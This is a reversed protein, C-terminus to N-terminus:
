KLGRLTTKRNRTRFDSLFSWAVLSKKGNKKKKKKKKQFDFNFSFPPVFLLICRPPHPRPVLSCFASVQTDLSGFISAQITFGSLAPQTFVTTAHQIYTLYSLSFQSVCVCVASWFCSILKTHSSLAEQWHRQDM